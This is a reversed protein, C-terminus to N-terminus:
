SVKGFMKKLEEQTFLNGTLFQTKPSCLMATYRGWMQPSQMSPPMMEPHERYLAMVTETATWDPLFANVAIHHEAMERALTVTLMNAASKATAYVPSTSEVAYQYAPDTALSVVSTVNIINGARREIMSPLVARCCFFIGRVDVNMVIDWQKATIQMFPSQLAVGANNVLIDIHGLEDLVHGVMSQVDAEKTLDTRVALARRGLAEIEDATQHITGPYRGDPTETRAAVVVDAGEKALEIAIAKGIGRSAGTVVAVKGILNM